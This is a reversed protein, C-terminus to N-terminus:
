KSRWMESVSIIGSIMGLQKAGGPLTPGNFNQVYDAAGVMWVSPNSWLYPLDVAFRRAVEQYAAIRTSQDTSERGTQLAQQILPDSNRAM